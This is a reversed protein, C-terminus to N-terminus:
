PRGVKELTFYRLRDRSSDAYIEFPSDFVTKDCSLFIESIFDAMVRRGICGNLIIISINLNKM